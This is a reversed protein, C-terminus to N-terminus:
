VDTGIGGLEVWGVGGRGARGRQLRLRVAVPAAGLVLTVFPFVGLPLRLVEASLHASCLMGLPAHCSRIPSRQQAAIVTAATDKEAAHMERNKRPM